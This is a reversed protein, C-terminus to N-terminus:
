WNRHGHEQDAEEIEDRIDERTDPHTNPHNMENVMARRRSHIESHGDLFRTITGAHTVHEHVPTQRLPTPPENSYEWGVTGIVRGTPQDPNIYTYPDHRESRIHGPGGTSLLYAKRSALSGQNAGGATFPKEQPMGAQDATPRWPENRWDHDIPM